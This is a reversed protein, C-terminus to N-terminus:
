VYCLLLSWFAFRVGGAPGFTILSETFTSSTPLVSQFLVKGKNYSYVLPHLLSSLDSVLMQRLKQRCGCVICEKEAHDNM